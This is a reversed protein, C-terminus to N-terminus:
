DEKLIEDLITILEKKLYLNLPYREDEDIIVIKDLLEKNIEIYEYNKVVSNLVNKIINEQM